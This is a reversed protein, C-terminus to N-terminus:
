LVLGPTRGDCKCCIGMRIQEKYCAQDGGSNSSFTDCIYLPCAHINLICATRLRSRLGSCHLGDSIKPGLGLRRSWEYAVLVATIRMLLAAWHAGFSTWSLQLYFCKQDIALSLRLGLRITKITNYFKGRQWSRGKTVLPLTCCSVFM